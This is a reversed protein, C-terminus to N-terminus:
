FLGFKLFANFNFGEFDKAGMIVNESNQYKLDASSTDRYSLGFGIRMYKIVNIEFNLSPELVFLARQDEIVTITSAVPDLKGYVIEGAGFMVSTNLHFVNNPFLTAEFIVGGYGGTYNFTDNLETDFEGRSIFGKGSLGLGFTKNPHYVLDGGILIADRQNIATYGVNPAIYIRFKKDRDPDKVKKEKEVKPEEEIVLNFRQPIPKLRKPQPPYIPVFILPRKQYIAYKAIFATTRIRERVYYQQLEEEKSPIQSTEANALVPQASSNTLDTSDQQDVTKQHTPIVDTENASASSNNSPSPISPAAPKATKLTDSKEQIVRASRKKRILLKNGMQECEMNQGSFLKELVAAISEQKVNISVRKKVDFVEASYTFAFDETEISKLIEEISTNRFNLTVKRSLVDSQEQGILAVSSVILALVFVIRLHM